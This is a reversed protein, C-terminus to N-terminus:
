WFGEYNTESIGSFKMMLLSPISKKKLAIWGQKLSLIRSLNQFHALYKMQFPTSIATRNRPSFATMYELETCKLGTEFYKMLLSAVTKHFTYVSAFFKDLQPANPNLELSQILSSAKKLLTAPDNLNVERLEKGTRNKVTELDDDVEKVAPECHIKLIQSRLLNEIKRRAEHLLFSRQEFYDIAEILERIAAQIFNMSLLSMERDVFYAQLLLQRETPNKVTAYYKVIGEWNFLVPTICFSMFFIYTSIKFIQSKPCFDSWIQGFKFFFDSIQGLDSLDSWSSLM